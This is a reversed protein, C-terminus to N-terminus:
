QGFELHLTLTAGGFGQPLPPYPASAYVARLAARDFAPVGSPEEIGAELLRGSRDIRCRVRCRTDPPVPPRFWNSEIMGLLRNLYYTYPFSEETAPGSGGGLTLGHGGASQSPEPAEGGASPAATVPAPPVSGSTSRSGTHKPQQPREEKPKVAPKKAPSVPEKPAARPKPKPAEPPPSPPQAPKASQAGREEPKAAPLPISTLRVQVSPLSIPRARASEGLVVAVAAVVHIALAILVARRWPWRTHARRSLEESVPDIM